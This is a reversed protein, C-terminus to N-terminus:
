VDERLVNLERLPNFQRVKDAPLCSSCAVAPYPRTRGDKCIHWTENYGNKQLESKLKTIEDRKENLLESSLSTIKKMIEQETM